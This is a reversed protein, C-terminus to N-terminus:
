SSVMLQISLTSFYLEDGFKDKLYADLAGVVNERKSGNDIVILKSIIIQLDIFERLDFLQRIHSKNNTLDVIAISGSLRVSVTAKYEM